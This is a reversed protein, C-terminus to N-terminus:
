KGGMLMWIGTAILCGGFWKEWGIREKLVARALIFTWLYTMATLPLVLTYPRYRLVVINAVVCSLYCIAGCWLWRDFAVRVLASFSDLSFRDMGKKLCLGGLAGLWTMGAMWFLFTGDNM